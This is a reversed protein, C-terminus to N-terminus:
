IPQPLASTLEPPAAFVDQDDIVLAHLRPVASTRPVRAPTTSPV